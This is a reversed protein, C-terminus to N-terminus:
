PHSVQEHHFWRFAERLRHETLHYTYVNVSLFLRDNIRESTEQHFVSIIKNCKVVTYKGSWSSSNISFKLFVHFLMNGLNKGNVLNEVHEKHAHSCTPVGCM